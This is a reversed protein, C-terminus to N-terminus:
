MAGTLARQAARGGRQMATGIVDAAGHAGLNGLAGALAGKAGVGKLAATGLVGAGSLPAHAVTGLSALGGLEAIQGLRGAQEQLGRGVSGRLGGGGAQAAQGASRVLEKGSQRAVGEVAGGLPVGLPNTLLGLTSKHGVHQGAGELAGGVIRKGAGGRGMQEAARTVQEAEGPAMKFGAAQVREAPTMAMQRGSAEMRSSLRGQKQTKAVVDGMGSREMEATLRHTPSVKQAVTEGAQRARQGINRVAQLFRAEKIIENLRSDALKSLEGSDWNKAAYISRLEDLFALKTIHDTSM